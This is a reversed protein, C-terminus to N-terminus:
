KTNREAFFKHCIMGEVYIEALPMGESQSIDVVCKKGSSEYVKAEELAVRKIMNFVDRIPTDDVLTAITDYYVDTPEQQMENISIM